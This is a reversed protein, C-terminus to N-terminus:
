TKRGGLASRTKGRRSGLAQNQDSSPEPAKRTRFRRIPRFRGISPQFRRIPRLRRIPRRLRIRARQRRSPGHQLRRRPPPPDQRRFLRRVLAPNQVLRLSLITGWRRAREASSLYSVGRESEVAGLAVASPGSGHSAATAASSLIVSTAFALTDARGYTLGSRFRNWWSGAWTPRDRGYTPGSRFRNRWYGGWARRHMQWSRFRQWRFGGWARLDAPWRRASNNSPISM